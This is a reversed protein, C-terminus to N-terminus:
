WGPNQDFSPLRKMEIKPIPLFIMKRDVIRQSIRTTPLVTRMYFGDKGTATNMGMIPESESTFYDGWRRVDFYRRNECLFEVMCERKIKEMVLGADGMDADTLGPLGARYRVLNFARKIEQTNRNFTEDGITFSENGLQNLAEAYGLLIEAYRIIPYPKSLRTGGVSYSDNNNIWKKLVYGTIPYQANNTVGDRGNRSDAYYTITLNQNFADRSTRNVWFCESFGISAYFRPERNVYMNSVDANLRYESFPFTISSTFGAEDYPYDSDNIAENISKGNVMEYADIIKQTICLGNQGGFEEPFAYQTATRMAGSNRAWIFEPNIHLVIDGDFMQKYSNYPCIGAAGGTGDDNWPLYYQPDNVNVALEWNSDDLLEVTNLRYLKGRVDQLDMVRKAAAAAVAWRRPDPTQQIYYAGDTSRKWSGFYSRASVGGNFLDSAHQLRLRAVLALAAGKTPRGYEMLNEIRYPLDESAEEFQTCIYEICEDYTNRPQDYYTIDENNAVLEDGLLIVPGHNMVLLYYAYARIFKAYSVIRANDTLLCDQCENLRQLVTNCQRIVQYCRKWIDFPGLDNENYQGLVYAMGQYTGTGLLTFAEDTALPGPTFIGGGFIAGEDAPLYSTAGWMFAEIYRRQTFVSDLKLETDIYKDISLYDCSSFWGASFIMIWALFIKFINKKM